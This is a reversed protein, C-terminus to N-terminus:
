RITSWDSPILKKIEKFCNRIKELTKVRRPMLTSFASEFRFNIFQKELKGVKEELISDSYCAEKGEVGYKEFLQSPQTKLLEFKRVRDIFTDIKDIKINEEWDNFLNATVRKWINTFLQCDAEEKNKDSVRCFMLITQWPNSQDYNTKLAEGQKRRADYTGKGWLIVIALGSIATAAVIWTSSHTKVLWHLAITTILAGYAAGFCLIVKREEFYQVTRVDKEVLKEFIAVGRDVKTYEPTYSKPWLINDNEIARPRLLLHNLLGM